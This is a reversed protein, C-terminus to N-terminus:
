AIPGPMMAAGSRVWEENRVSTKAGFEAEFRRLALIAKTDNYLDTDERSYARYLMWDVLGAHAEARIEPTDREHCLQKKPLSQVTMVLELVASPCPWLHLSGTTVGYVLHTVQPQPSDFQWGPHLEDMEQVGLVVVPQRNVFSRTVRLAQSPLSVLEKNAVLQVRVTDVLLQARRCAEVQAENAYLKLLEDECFPQQTDTDFAQERYLAILEKLNM